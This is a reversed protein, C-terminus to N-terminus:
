NVVAQMSDPAEEYGTMKVLFDKDRLPRGNFIGQILDVDFGSLATLDRPNDIDKACVRINKERALKILSKIFSVSIADGHIRSAKIKLTKVAPNDLPAATFYGTGTDDAIINVGMASLQQLYVNGESLTGDSESASISVASPPLSYELLTSQLVEVSSETNLVSEPVTFSVRFEPFGNARVVSCFRCIMDVSYSYLQRSLGLQRIIPMFREWPVTTSDNGWFLNAECCHLAGTKMELVPQYLYYFGTFGHEASETILQKVLRNDALNEELGESYCVADESGRDKAYRLTNTVAGICGASTDADTPYMAFGSYVRLHHETEHLYWPSRFKTLVAKAFQRAEEREMGRLAILLVDSSFRYLRKPVSCPMAMIYEACSKLIDDAYEFSYIESISKLNSFEVAVLAGAHGAAIGVDLDHEMMSRNPINTYLDYYALRELRTRSSNLEEELFFRHVVTSLLHTLSKLLVRERSSWERNDTQATYLVVGREIGKDYTRVLACSLDPKDTNVAISHLDTPYFGSYDLEETIEPKCSFSQRAPILSGSKDLKYTKLPTGEDMCIEIESLSFHDCILGGINKIASKSDPSQLFMSYAGNLLIQDEVNQGLLKNANQSTEMEAVLAVYSNAVASVTHAMTDLLQASKDVETQNKGTILWTGIIQHRVRINKKRQYDMRNLNVGTNQGKPFYTKGDHRDIICSYLGETRSFPQQIRVLYDEGLIDCLGFSQESLKINHKSRFRRLVVDEGECDLYDTVNFIMGDVSCPINGNKRVKGTIYHWLFDEDHKFRAHLKIEASHGSIVRSIEECFPQYDDPHIIEGIKVIDGCNGIVSSGSLIRMPFGQQFSMTYAINGSSEVAGFLLQEDTPNYEATNEVDTNTMTVVSGGRM